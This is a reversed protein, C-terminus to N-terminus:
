LSGSFVRSKEKFKAKGLIQSLSTSSSLAVDEFDDRIGCKRGKVGIHIEKGGARFVVGGCGDWSLLGGPNSCFSVLKDRQKEKSEEGDRTWRSSSLSFVFCLTDSNQM